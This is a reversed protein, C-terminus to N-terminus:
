RPIQIAEIRSVTTVKMGLARQADAVSNWVSGLQNDIIRMGDPTLDAFVVHGGRAGGEFFVVYRGAVGGQAVPALGGPKAALKLGVMEFWNRAYAIAAEVSGLSTRPLGFARVLYAAEVESGTMELIARSATQAACDSFKDAFGAIGVTPLSARALVAAKALECAVWVARNMFLDAEYGAQAGEAFGERMAQAMEVTPATPLAPLKDNEAQVKALAEARLKATSSDWLSKGGMLTTTTFMDLFDEVWARYQGHVTGVRRGAERAADLSGPAPPLRPSAGGAPAPSFPLALLSLISM